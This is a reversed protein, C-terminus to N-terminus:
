PPSRYLQSFPSPLSLLHRLSLGFHLASCRWCSFVPNRAIGGFSTLVAATKVTHLQTWLLFGTLSLLIMSGAISDALLIWFVNVGTGTHLRSLMGIFNADSSDLKVFRNGVFYEASISRQPNHMSVSWREPQMVEKDAWILKKAEQKRASPPMSPHFQLYQQLWDAMQQPNQFMTTPLPLQASTQQSREIPIKMVSRHNMLIGTAGFMLGLIAGWLGLYLHTNRLYTLLVARRSRRRPVAEKANEATILHLHPPAELSQERPTPM